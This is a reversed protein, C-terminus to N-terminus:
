FYRVTISRGINSLFPDKMEIVIFYIGFECLLVETVGQIVSAPIKEETNHKYKV